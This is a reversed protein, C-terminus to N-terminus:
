PNGAIDFTKEHRKGPVKQKEEAGEIREQFSFCCFGGQRMTETMM